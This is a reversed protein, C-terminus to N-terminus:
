GNGGSGGSCINPRPESCAGDGAPKDPLYPPGGTRAAGVILAYKTCGGSGRGEENDDVDPGGFGEMAGRNMALGDADTTGDTARGATFATGFAAEAAEIFRHPSSPGQGGLHIRGRPAM